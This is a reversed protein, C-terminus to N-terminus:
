ALVALIVINHYLEQDFEGKAKKSWFYSQALQASDSSGGIAKQATQMMSDMKAYERIDNVYSKGSEPIANVVTPFDHYAVKAAKVM